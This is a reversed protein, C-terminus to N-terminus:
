ESKEKGDAHEALQRLLVERLERQKEAVSIRM